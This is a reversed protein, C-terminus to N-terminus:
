LTTNVIAYVSVRRQVEIGPEQVAESTRRYTSYLIANSDSLNQGHLLTYVRDNLDDVQESSTETSYCQIIVNSEAINCAFDNEYPEDTEALIYYTVLPYESLQKPNGHRVRNTSGLLNRLTVDNNLTDFILKKLKNIDRAL